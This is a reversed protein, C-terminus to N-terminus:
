HHNKGYYLIILHQLSLTKAQSKCIKLRFFGMHPLKLSLFDGFYMKKIEKEQNNQLYYKDKCGTHVRIALGGSTM